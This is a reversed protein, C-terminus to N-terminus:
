PVNIFSLVHVFLYDGQNLFCHFTDSGERTWYSLQLEDIAGYLIVLSSKFHTWITLHLNFGFSENSIDLTQGDKFTPRDDDDDDSQHTVSSCYYLHTPLYIDPVSKMKFTIQHILIFFLFHSLSVFWFTDNASENSVHNHNWDILGKIYIYIYNLALPDRCLPM